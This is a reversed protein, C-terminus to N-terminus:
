SPPPGGIGLQEMMAATDTVGWHAVAKGDRFEVIDIAPVDFRGGSPAIGMFEGQHTGSFRLRTIVKNGDQLVEEVSARFDPFASRMMTVLERPADKGASIGPPLQEHEIFDDAVLDDIVDYRAQNFVEEYFRLMAAKLDSM